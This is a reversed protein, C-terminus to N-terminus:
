PVENRRWHTSVGCSMSWGSWTRRRPSSPLCPVTELLFAGSYFEECATLADKGARHAPPVTEEVFRWIPGEFIGHFRGGRPRLAADGEIGRAHAIYTAPWWDPDPARDMALLDWYLATFAVCAGISSPHNHTM